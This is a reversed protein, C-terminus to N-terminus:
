SVALLILVLALAFTALIAAASLGLFPVSVLPLAGVHPGLLERSATAV